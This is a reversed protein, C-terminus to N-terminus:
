QKLVHLTTVLRGHTFGALSLTKQFSAEDAEAANPWQSVSLPQLQAAAGKSQEGHHRCVM